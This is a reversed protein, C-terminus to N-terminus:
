DERVLINVIANKCHCVQVINPSYEKSKKKKKIVESAMNYSQTERIAIEVLREKEVKLTKRTATFHNCLTAM